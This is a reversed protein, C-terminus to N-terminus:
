RLHQRATAVTAPSLDLSAAWAEVDSRRIAGLSRRGLTPAIHRNITNEVVATTAERWTPRMRELWREAYEGLSTQAKRPDIYSGSMLNHQIEVLFQDADVKRDFHKARQPGGPYERWRGNPRRDVSAM